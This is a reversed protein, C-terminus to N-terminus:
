FIRKINDSIKEATEKTLETIEMTVNLLSDANRALGELTFVLNPDETAFVFSDSGIRRGNCLLFKKSDIPYPNGDIDAELIRVLCYNRLPDLRVYRMEPSIPVCVSASKDDTYAKDYFYSTEESFTGDFNAPYIQFMYAGSSDSLKEIFEYPSSIKKGIMDRLEQMSRYKGTVRKQFAAEDEKLLEAAENSINIRELILDYNIKERKKDELLYCYIARFATERVPVLSEKTWEYDILTWSDTEEDVLINSFVIDIDAIRETDNYGVLDLYKGFLSDFGALNNENICNDLLEELTKGRVFEFCAVPNEEKNIVECRNIKLKGGEYRKKLGHYYDELNCIHKRGEPYLPYKKIIDIKRNGLEVKEQSTYIQYERARDNSFRAYNVNVEPGLVVLYSNSFKDFTGDEILSDFADKESFLDMRDQDFNRKNDKLEGLRPLREDSFLTHMFKYDPYPYFFQYNDIGASEFIKILGEKSFTRVGDGAKYGEIGAFYRSVHDEKCGAFYKLGMRNEIAIILRGDPKLHKLLLALFDEYPKESKIYSAGYEFVGILCIYDFDVPLNKEVDTFNGVHITLNDADMHRNANILSRKKSLDCSVVEGAMTTFAGTIAGCGSGVELVKDKKTIPLWRVINERAGSLHYLVPWQARSEIVDPFEVPAFKKSIELLEDEIAGDCYLDQGSYVTYDLTVKGVKEITRNNTITEVTNEAIDSM